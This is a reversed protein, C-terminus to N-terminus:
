KNMRRKLYNEIMPHQAVDSSARLNELADEGLDNQFELDVDYEEVLMKVVEYQGLLAAWHLAPTQKDYPNAGSKLLFKIMTINGTFIAENLPSNGFSGWKLDINAGYEILSKVAEMNESKIACHLLPQKSKINVANANGGNQMYRDIAEVNGFSAADFIDTNPQHATLPTFSDGCLRCYIELSREVVIAGDLSQLQVLYIGKPPASNGYGVTAVGLYPKMDASFIKGPQLSVRTNAIEKEAGTFYVVFNYPGQYGTIYVALTDKDLDIKEIHTPTKWFRYGNGSADLNRKTTVIFAQEYVNISTSLCGVNILMLVISAIYISIRTHIATNM